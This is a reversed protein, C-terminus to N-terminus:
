PLGRVTDAGAVHGPPLAAAPGSSRAIRKGILLGLAAVIVVVSGAVGLYAGSGAAGGDDALASGLLGVFLGLCALGSGALIGSCARPDGQRSMVVSAAVGAVCAPVLAQFAAWKSLDALSVPKEGAFGVSPLFCSVAVLAAGGLALAGFGLASRTWGSEQAPRTIGVRSTARSLRHGAGVVGLAIEVVAPPAAIGLVLAVGSAGLLFAGLLPDTVSGEAWYLYEEYEWALYALFYALLGFGVGALLGSSFRRQPSRVILVFGTLAIAGACVLPELVFWLGYGGDGASLPPRFCAATILGAAVVAVFGYVRAARRGSVRDRARHDDTEALPEARRVPLGRLRRTAASWLRIAANIAAVLATVPGLLSAILGVFPVVWATRRHWGRVLVVTASLWMVFATAAFFKFIYGAGEINASILLYLWLAGLVAQLLGTAGQRIAQVVRRIRLHRARWDLIAAALVDHFIEYRAPGEDGQRGGVRRLIRFKSDTLRELAPEVDPEALGVYAALDEASHAIKTGSPTVLHHFIRAAVYREYRPLTRMTKDLHTKVIRESHGLRALTALRLARSGSQREERWLREMVLQLYPTEIPQDAGDDGKHTESVGVGVFGVVVRGTALEDLLTEILEPEITMGPEVGALTNYTEIPLAIADRAGPRGLHRIRLYNDFLIPISRKFRDLRALADERISILFSARLNSMALARPLEAALTGEADDGEHYLMYEEFQDLIILLDSELRETWAALLDTLALHPSPPDVDLGLSEVACQVSRAIGVVPDDSWSSRGGEDDDDLPYHVIVFQPRGLREVNDRALDRLHRCVGARLLSSKEVGSEGYLLTLRSAMLNAAVIRTERERGFFFPADQESYHSLGKYPSDPLTLVPEIGPRAETTAATM